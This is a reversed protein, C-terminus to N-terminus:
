AAKEAMRYALADAISQASKRTVYNTGLWADQRRERWIQLIEALEFPNYPNDAEALLDRIIAYGYERVLARMPKSMSDIHRMIEVSNPDPDFM